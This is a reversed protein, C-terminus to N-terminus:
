CVCLSRCLSLPLSCFIFLDRKGGGFFIADQQERQGRLDPVTTGNHLQLCKSVKPALAPHGDLVDGRGCLPTLREGCPGDWCIPDTLDRHRLARLQADLDKEARLGAHVCLVRQVDGGAEALEFEHVWRLNRLFEKHEEPVAANLATRHAPVTCSDEPWEVGYSRFTSEAEFIDSGGWRRGQYHMGGPVPHPFFGKTYKAPRTSDLDFEAAVEPLCGLFAAMGFDHNGALFTAPGLHSGERREKQLSVLWDLVLATDPGRDCYDGLFVIAAADLAERGLETELAEWLARLEALNGHIDGVCVLQRCRLPHCDRAHTAARGASTGEM